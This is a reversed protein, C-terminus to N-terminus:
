LQSFGDDMDDDFFTSMSPQQNNYQKHLPQPATGKQPQSKTSLGLKERIQLVQRRTADDLLNLQAPTMVSVRDIVSMAAPAEHTNVGLDEVVTKAFTSHPTPPARQVGAIPTTPNRTPISTGTGTGATMFGPGSGSRSRLNSSSAQGPVAATATSNVWADAGTGNSEGFFAEGRPSLLTTRVSDVRRSIEDQLGKPLADSVSSPLPERTGRRYKDDKGAETVSEAQGNGIGSGRMSGRANPILDIKTNQKPSVRRPSSSEYSAQAQFKQLDRIEARLDSQTKLLHKLIYSWNVVEEERHHKDIMENALEVKTARFKADKVSLVQAVVRYNREIAGHLMAFAQAVENIDGFDLLSSPVDVEVANMEMSKQFDSEVKTVAELPTLRSLHDGIDKFTKSDKLPDEDLMNTMEETFEFDADAVEALRVVIDDKLEEERVECARLLAVSEQYVAYLLQYAYGIITMTRPDQDMLRLWSANIEGDQDGNEGMTANGRHIYLLVRELESANLASPGKSVDATGHAGGPIAKKLGSVIKEHKKEQEHLKEMMIAEMNSLKEQLRACMEAYDVEEHQVPTTKVTMCRAAFLLTSLTEGYNVAAPGITAILATSATGGLSDQLLRTLKSDRYPVHGPSDEALAAIVNGLASLSTNISKAESLRAGKSITRRVRESGALDVMLLKSKVTRSYSRSNENNNENPNKPEFHQVISITLITHSRSSTVNMLTSAIARNELGLNLLAEAESYNRIMYEQLGEVYFGRAPDERIVLNDDSASVPHPSTSAAAALLDQITERYIQLFSFTVTIEATDQAGIHEFIQSLARPIIGARENNVTELIGMTYTKGTGTQGYAFITGNFGRLVDQVVPRAIKDYVHDQGHMSDFAYDFYFDRRKGSVMTLSVLNLAEDGDSDPLPMPTSSMDVIPVFESHSFDVEDQFPPRCRIGVKLRAAKGSSRTGRTKPKRISRANSGGTQRPTASM